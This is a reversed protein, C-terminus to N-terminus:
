DCIWEISGTRDIVVELLIGKVKIKVLRLGMDIDPDFFDKSITVEADKFMERFTERFSPNM